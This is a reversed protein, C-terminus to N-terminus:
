DHLIWENGQIDGFGGVIVRDLFRVQLLHAFMWRFPIGFTELRNASCVFHEFGTPISQTISQELLFLQIGNSQHRGGQLGAWDAAQSLLLELLPEAM